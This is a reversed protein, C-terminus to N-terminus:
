LLTQYPVYYETQNGLLKIFYVLVYLFVLTKLIIPQRENNEKFVMPYLLTQVMTFYIIIRAGLVLRFTLNDLIIMFLFLKFWKERKIDKTASLDLIFYIINLALAMIAAYGVNDRFGFSASLAKSTIYVSYRGLILLLLTNNVFFGIVFSISLLWITSSRNTKVYPTIFIASAIIASTHFGMAIIIFLITKFKNPYYTYALLVFSIAIMQRVANFSYLFGFLAFYFFLSLIPNVSVKKFVIALPILTLAGCCGQLMWIPAKYYFLLKNLYGYLPEIHDTLSLYKQSEYIKIYMATDVGMNEARIAYMIIGLIILIYFLVDQRKINSLLLLGFFISFYFIM